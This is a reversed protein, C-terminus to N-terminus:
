VYLLLMLFFIIILVTAAMIALLTQKARKTLITFFTVITESRQEHKRLVFQCLFTKKETKSQNKEPSFIADNHHIQWSVPYFIIQSQTKVKQKM